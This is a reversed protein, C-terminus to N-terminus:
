KQDGGIRKAEMVEIAKFYREKEQPSLEKRLKKSLYSDQMNLADALEWLYFGREKVADRIDGNAKM